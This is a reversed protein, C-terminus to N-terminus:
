CRGWRRSSCWPPSQAAGSGSALRTGSCGWRCRRGSSCSCCCPEPVRAYLAAIVRRESVTVLETLSDGLASMLDSLYASRAVRAEIAWMEGQLELSRQVNARVQLASPSTNIRLPLYERLLQKLEATDAEPMYDAQLYAATIANAEELVLGRRADFRESAMSMTVALLFAMLALLAGVLVDAPGEQEGPMRDQWWRGVRFGVEYCVLTVLAFLAFAVAIPFIPGLLERTM